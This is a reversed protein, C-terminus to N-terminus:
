PLWSSNQASPCQLPRKPGQGTHSLQNTCWERCQFTPEIEMWPEDSPVTQIGAHSVFLQNKKEREKGARRELIFLYFM